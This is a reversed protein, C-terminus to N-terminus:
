LHYPNHGSERIQDLNQCDIQWIINDLWQGNEENGVRRTNLSGSLCDFGESILFKSLWVDEPDDEGRSATEVLLQAYNRTNFAPVDCVRSNDPDFWEYTGMDVSYISCCRILKHLLARGIGKRRHKVDVYVHARGQFRYVSQHANGVLGGRPINLFGFGLIKDPEPERQPGQLHRLMQRYPGTPQVQYLRLRVPAPIEKRAAAEAPTGHVAVIFPTQISRCHAFIRQMDTLELIENDLAQVGNQVEWNYIELLQPLDEEQVPRLFWSKKGHQATDVPISPAWAVVSTTRQGAPPSMGLPTPTNAKWRRRKEDSVRAETSQHRRQAIEVDAPAKLAATGHFRRVGNDRTNEDQPNIETEPYDVPPILYGSTPEVDCGAHRDEQQELFVCKPANPLDRLWDLCQRGVIGVDCYTESQSEKGNVTGDNVSMGGNSAIGKLPSLHCSSEHDDDNFKVSSVTDPLSQSKRDCSKKARFRQRTGSAAGLVPRAFDIPRRNVQMQPRCAGEEDVERAVQRPMTPSPRHQAVQRANLSIQGTTGKLSTNQKTHADNDHSRVVPFVDRAAEFLTRPMGGEPPIETSEVQYNSNKESSINDSSKNFLLHPPLGGEVNRPQKGTAPQKAQQASGVRHELRQKWM